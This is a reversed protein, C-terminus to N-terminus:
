RSDLLNIMNKFGENEVISLPQLDEAIMRVIAEYFAKIQLESPAGFRYYCKILLLYNLHLFIFLVTTYQSYLLNYIYIPSIIM